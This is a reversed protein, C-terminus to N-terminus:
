DDRVVEVAGVGVGRQPLAEILGQPASGQLGGPLEEGRHGFHDLGLFEIGGRLLGEEGAEAGEVREQPGPGGRGRREEEPVRPRHEVARQRGFQVHEVHRQPVEM